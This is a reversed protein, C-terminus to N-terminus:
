TRQRVGDTCAHRTLPSVLEVSVEAALALVDACSVVGPCTNELAAKIDDVVPFGRASGKNPNAEKESRMTPTEDLLLSADCGQM